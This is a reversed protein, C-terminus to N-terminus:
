RQVWEVSNKRISELEGTHEQVLSGQIMVQRDSSCRVESPHDEILKGVGEPLPLCRLTLAVRKDSTLVRIKGTKYDALSVGEEDSWPAIKLQPPPLISGDESVVQAYLQSTRHVNECYGRPFPTTM